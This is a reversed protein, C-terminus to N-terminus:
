NTFVFGDIQKSSNFWLSIAAGRRQIHTKWGLPPTIWRGRTQKATGADSRTAPSLLPCKGNNSPVASVSVTERRPGLGRYMCKPSNHGEYQSGDGQEESCWQGMIVHQKHGKCNTHKISSNHEGAVFKRAGKQYTSRCVSLLRTHRWRISM